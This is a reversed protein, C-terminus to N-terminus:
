IPMLNSYQYIFIKNIGCISTRVKEVIGV